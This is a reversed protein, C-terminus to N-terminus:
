PAPVTAAVGVEAVGTAGVSRSVTFTTTLPTPALCTGDPLITRRSAGKQVYVGATVCDASAPLASTLSLVLLLLVVLGLRRPNFRM